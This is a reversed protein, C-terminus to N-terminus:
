ARRSRAKKEAREERDYEEETPVPKHSIKPLEADEDDKEDFYLWGAAVGYVKALGVGIDAPPLIDSFWSAVTSQNIAETGLAKGVRKGIEERSVRGGERGELAAHAQFLRVRFGKRVVTQLKSLIFGNNRKRKSSFGSIEM